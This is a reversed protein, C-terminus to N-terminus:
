RKALYLIVLGAFTLIMAIGGKFLDVVQPWWCLILVIGLILFFIGVIFMLIQKFMGAKKRRDFIILCENRYSPKELASADLGM